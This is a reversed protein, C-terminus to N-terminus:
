IISIEFWGINEDVGMSFHLQPSLSLHYIILNSIYILSKDFVDDKYNVM